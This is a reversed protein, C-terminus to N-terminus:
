DAKLQQIFPKNLHQMDYTTFLIAGTINFVVNHQHSWCILSIPRELIIHSVRQKLVEVLFIMM